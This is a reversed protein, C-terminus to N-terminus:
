SLAAKTRLLLCPLIIVNFAMHAPFILRGQTPQGVCTIFECMQLALGTIVACRVYNSLPAAM